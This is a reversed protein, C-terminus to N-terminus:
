DVQAVASVRHGGEDILVFITEVAVLHEQLHQATALHRDSLLIVEKPQKNLWFLEEALVFLM